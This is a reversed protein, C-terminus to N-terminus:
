FQKESKCIENRLRKAFREAFRDVEGWLAIPKIEKQFKDLEENFIKFIREREQKIGRQIGDRQALKENENWDDFLKPKKM